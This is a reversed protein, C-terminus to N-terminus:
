VSFVTSFVGWFVGSFVNVSLTKTVRRITCLGLLLTLVPTALEPFFRYFDFVDNLM